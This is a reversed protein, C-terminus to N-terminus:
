HQTALWYDINIIVSFGHFYYAAIHFGTLKAARMILSLHRSMVSLTYGVFRLILLYSLLCAAHFTVLCVTILWLSINQFVVVHRTSYVMFLLTRLLTIIVMYGYVFSYCYTHQEKLFVSLAVYERKMGVFVTIIIYIHFNIPM